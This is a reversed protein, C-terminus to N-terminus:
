RTSPTPQVGLRETLPSCGTFVYRCFSLTYAAPQVNM